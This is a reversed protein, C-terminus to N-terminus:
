ALGLEAALDLITFRNRLYRARRLGNRYEDAPASLEEPTVPGGAAAIAQAVVASPLVDTKVADVVDPLQERLTEIETKMAHPDLRKERWQNLVEPAVHGWDAEIWERIQDESPQQAALAGSDMSRPNMACVREWLRLCDITAVGVQAGHLDHPTGYLASKMDLYHSILHEGGSAPASSGAVVMSLGSLLLAEMVVGVADPDGHRVRPAVDLLREQAGEFFERPRDCYYGGRIMHAARWDASSSCKSLFDGLGAATMRAPATAAVDPDAFIGLAPRCPLTRKLGRVKLAVINSTYGNMSAATPFLLVPLGRKDGAYKALDSLSGSGIAVIFDVGQAANAVVMAEEETADFADPGYTREAITKGAASLASLVAEGGVHRTNADSVVLCSRGLREAAVAALRSAANAGLHCYEIPLAHTEGCACVFIKGLSNWGLKEM